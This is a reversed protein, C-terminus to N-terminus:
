DRKETTTDHVDAPEDAEDHGYVGEAEARDVKKLQKTLSWGIIAVAVILLIFVAFGTWGAVVDNPEPTEEAARVILPVFM